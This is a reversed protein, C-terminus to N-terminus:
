RWRAVWPQNAGSLTFDIRSSDGLSQHRMPRSSVIVPKAGIVRQPRARAPAFRPLSESPRTFPMRVASSSEESSREFQSSATSEAQSVFTPM